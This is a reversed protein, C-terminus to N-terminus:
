LTEYRLRRKSGFAQLWRDILQDLAGTLHPTLWVIAQRRGHLENLHSSLWGEAEEWRLPQFRGSAEKLLPQRIREPNYLGQLSAQGRACLRGRNVPHDPNGEVKVARGELTKVLMGCGAPCERCVTAYWTAHGPVIEEAPILYPILKEPAHSSCGTLTAAGGIGLLKFFDRRNVIVRMVGEVLQIVQSVDCLRYEGAPRPSLEPMSGDDPRSGQSRSGNESNPWSVGRLCRSRPCAGCALVRRFRASWLNEGM